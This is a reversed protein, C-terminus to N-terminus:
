VMEDWQSYYDNLKEQLEVIENSIATLQEFDSSIEPLSLQNQKEEILMETEAIDKELKELKKAAAIEASRQAKSRYYQQKQEGPQEAKKRSENKKELERLNLQETMAEFGDTFSELQGDAMRIIRTPLRSLLYRDHSVIILTGEFDMLAQELAEKAPIDLHNTPEDMLM